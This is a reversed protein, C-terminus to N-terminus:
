LGYKAKLYYDVQEREQDSLARNYVLIESIDGTFFTGQYGEGIFGEGTMGALTTYRGTQTNLLKGNVYLSDTSGNHIATTLTFDGGIDSTRLVEPDNGVQTTGFRYALHTQFPSVYTNGWHANEVWFLAAHQSHFTGDSVDNNARGVLFVTM